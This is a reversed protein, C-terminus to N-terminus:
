SRVLTIYLHKWISEDKLDKCMRKMLGLTRNAKATLEIIRTRWSVDNNMPIGLDGTSRVCELKESDLIHDIASGIKKKNIENGLM